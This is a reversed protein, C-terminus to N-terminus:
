VSMYSLCAAKKCPELQTKLGLRKELGRLPGIKGKRLIGFASTAIKAPQTLLAAGAVGGFFLVGL